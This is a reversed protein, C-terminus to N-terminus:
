NDLWFDFFLCSALRECILCGTVLIIYAFAPSSGICNMCGKKKKKKKLFFNMCMNYPYGIFTLM